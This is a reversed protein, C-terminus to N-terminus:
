VFHDSGINSDIMRVILSSNDNLEICNTDNWGLIINSVEFHGMRAILDGSDIM